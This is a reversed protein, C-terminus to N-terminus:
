NKYSLKILPLRAIKRYKNYRCLSNYNYNNHIFKGDNNYIKKSYNDFLWNLIDYKNARLAHKFLMNECMLIDDPKNKIFWQFMQLDFNAIEDSIMCMYKDYNPSYYDNNYLKNAV